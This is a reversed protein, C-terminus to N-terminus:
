NTVTYADAFGADKVKALLTSQEASTRSPGVLVRWFTKDTGTQEYVSPAMGAGRLQTAARDANDELTFIGAQIFPKELDSAPQGTVPAPASTDVAAAGAAAAAPQRAWPWRFGRKPTEAPDAAPEAITPTTESAEIAAAAGAIPDLETASIETTEELVATEEAAAATPEPEPARILATVTLEVPAGALMGLAEAADSSAQIRPGPNDRERKFLAGVVSTDNSGNRIIVRRPETVDPHAVWVGGLSPRGDWLAAESIQFVDPAESDKGADGGRASSSGANGDTNQLFGTGDDCAALLGIVLAAGTLTRIERFGTKPRIM